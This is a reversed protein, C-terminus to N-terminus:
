KKKKGADPGQTTKAGADSAGGDVPALFKSGDTLAWDAAYSAIQFITDDTSRKVWRNTGTATAGVLVTFTGAGDALEITVTAEPKDLGVDAPSKGDGFDDASLSKWSRLMEKLKEEDFQALPKKSRTASWKDGKTFSFMGHANTLIVRSVTNDEFKLIEKFRYDKAEKTYLYSKYDKAAWVQDPKSGVIVLQGAPGSKGFLDDTKKDSGRWTVVHVAHAPDLQKEKRVSDDLTLHIESEVKLQGLNMVIDKITGQNVSARLPKTMVWMMPPGADASADGPNPDIVKELLVEPKDGSTISIKDIDEPANISPLEKPTLPPAGISEDRKAQRYVLLGLGGLMVVGIAIIKDRTM